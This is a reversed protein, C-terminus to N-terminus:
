CGEQKNFLGKFVDFFDTTGSTGAGAWRLEDEADRFIEEASTRGNIRGNSLGLVFLSSGNSIYYYNSLIFFIINM